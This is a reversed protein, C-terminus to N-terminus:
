YLLKVTASVDHSCYKVTKALEGETLPRSLNFDIETEEIDMGLHGEIEKLRPPNQGLDDILDFQAIDLWKGCLFPFNWADNHGDAIIYENLAKVTANDAGHYIAKLIWQDYHKNNYGGLIPTVADIFQAVGYNDNHFIMKEGTTLKEFILLWDHLFVETDYIWIDDINPIEKRLEDLQTNSLTAM